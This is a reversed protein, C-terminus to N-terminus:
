VRVGGGFFFFFLVLSRPDLAMYTSRPDSTSPSRIRGRPKPRAPASYELSGGIGEYQFLGSSTPAKKVYSSKPTYEKNPLSYM